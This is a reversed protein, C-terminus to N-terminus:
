FTQHVIGAVFVNADTTLVARVIPSMGAAPSYDMQGLGNAAAIQTIAANAYTTTNVNTWNGNGPDGHLDNTQLHADVTAAGTIAATTVIFRVGQKGNLTVTAGNVVNTTDGNRSAVQVSMGPADGDGGHRPSARNSM